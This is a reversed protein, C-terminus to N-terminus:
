KKKEGERKAMRWRAIERMTLPLAGYQIALKRKSMAIDFHERSPGEGAHQLWRRHVGIRDAMELLEDSTDAMMHSMKMRGFPAFMSDVYVSM